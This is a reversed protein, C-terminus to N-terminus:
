LSVAFIKHIIYITSYLLTFTLSDSLLLKFLYFLFLKSLSKLFSQHFHDEEHFIISVLCFFFGLFANLLLIDVLKVSELARIELNILM